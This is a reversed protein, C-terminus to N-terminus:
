GRYHDDVTHKSPRQPAHAGRSHLWAALHDFPDSGAKKANEVLELMEPAYHALGPRRPMDYWDLRDLVAVRQELPDAPPDFRAPLGLREYLHQSPFRLRRRRGRLELELGQWAVQALRHHDCADSLVQWMNRPPGGATDIGEPASSELYRMVAAAGATRGSGVIEVDVRSRPASVRQGAGIVGHSWAPTIAEKLRRAFRGEVQDTGALFVLARLYPQWGFERQYALEVRSHYGVLGLVRMRRQQPRREGRVESWGAQVADWRAHLSDRDSVRIRLDVLAVSNGAAQWAGIGLTLQLATQSWMVPACVPCTLRTCMGVNRLSASWGDKGRRLLIVPSGAPSTGCDEQAEGARTFERLGERLRYRERRQM